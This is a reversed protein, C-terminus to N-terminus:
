LRELFLYLSQPSGIETQEVKYPINNGHFEFNIRNRKLDLSNQVEDGYVVLYSALSLAFISSQASYRSKLTDVIFNSFEILTYMGAHMFSGPPIRLHFKDIHLAGGEQSRFISSIESSINNIYIMMIPSSLEMSREFISRMLSALHEFYEMNFLPSSTVSAVVISERAVTMKKIIMSFPQGGKDGLRFRATVDDLLSAQERAILEPMAALLLRDGAYAVPVWEGGKLLFLAALTSYNHTNHHYLLGKIFGKAHRSVYKQEILNYRRLLKRYAERTRDVPLTGESSSRITERIQELLASIDSESM